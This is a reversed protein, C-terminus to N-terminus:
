VPSRRVRYRALQQKEKLWEVVTPTLHAVTASDEQVAKLFARVDEPVDFTISGYARRCADAHARLSSLDSPGTPLRLRAVEQYLRFSDEYRRAASENEPTPPMLARVTSPSELGGCEEVARKWAEGAATELAEALGSVSSLLKRWSADRTVGEVDSAAQLGKRIDAAQRRVANRKSLIAPAQREAQSLIQASKECKDLKGKVTKWETSREQIRRVEDMNQKALSLNSLQQDLQRFRQLISNM